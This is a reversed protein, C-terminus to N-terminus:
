KESPFGETVREAGRVWWLNTVPMIRKLNRIQSETPREGNALAKGIGYATSFTRDLFGLAPADLTSQAGGYGAAGLQLLGAVPNFSGWLPARALIIAINKEPEETWKEMAEDITLGNYVTDRYMQNLIESALWTAFFAAQKHYAMSGVRSMTAAQFAMAWSTFTTLLNIWPSDGFAGSSSAKTLASPTAILNQSDHWAMRRLRKDLEQALVRDQGDLQLILSRMRDPHSLAKRDKANIEKAIRLMDPDFLGYQKMRRFRDIPIGIERAIRKAEKIDPIVRQVDMAAIKDFKRRVAWLDSYTANYNMHKLAGTGPRELSVLRTVDVLLQSGKVWNSNQHEKSLNAGPHAFLRSPYQEIAGEFGLSKAHGSSIFHKLFDGTNQVLNVYTATRSIVRPATMVGGESALITPGIGALAAASTASGLTYAARQGEARQKMRHANSLDTTEFIKVLDQAEKNGAAMNRLAETLERWTITQGAAESIASGRHVNYGTSMRYRHIISTPDLEIAGTKLVDESLLVAQEIKRAKNSQVYNNVQRAASTDGRFPTHYPSDAMNADPDHSYNKAQKRWIAIEAETKLSEDLANLYDQRYKENIESVKNPILMEGTVDDVRTSFDPPVEKSFIHRPAEPDKLLYGLRALTNNHVDATLIDAPKYAGRLDRYYSGVMASEMEETINDALYTPFYNDQYNEIVRYQVGQRGMDDFYDRMMGSVVKTEPRADELGAAARANNILLERGVDDSRDKLMAEQQRQLPDVISIEDAMVREATSFTVTGDPHLLKEHEALPGNDIVGFLRAIVRQVKDESAMARKVKIAPALTGTLKGLKSNLIWNYLGHSPSAEVVGEDSFLEQVKAVRAKHTPQSAIPIDEAKRRMADVFGEVKVANGTDDLRFQKVLDDHNLEAERLARRAKSIAKQDGSQIVKKLAETLEWVKKKALSMKTPPIEGSDMARQLPSITDGDAVKTFSMLEDHTPLGERIYRAVTQATKSDEIKVGGEAFLDGLEQLERRQQPHYMVATYQDLTDLSKMHEVDIPLDYSLPQARRRRGIVETQLNIVGTNEMISRNTFPLSNNIARVGLESMALGLVGGIGAQLWPVDLDEGPAKAAISFDYSQQAYGMAAGYAGGTATFGGQLIARSTLSRGQEAATRAAVQTPGEAIFQAISATYDRGTIKAMAAARQEVTGTAAMRVLSKKLRNKAVATAGVSLLLMPDTGIQIAVASVAAMKSRIPMQEKAVQLWQRGQIVESLKPWANAFDEASSIQIGSLAEPSFGNQLLVRQFLPDFTNWLDKIPVTSAKRQAFGNELDEPLELYWGDEYQVTFPGPMSIGDQSSDAVFGFLYDAGGSLMIRGFGSLEETARAGQILRAALAKAFTDDLGLFSKSDPRLLTPKGSYTLFVREFPDPFAANRIDSALPADFPNPVAPGFPLATM